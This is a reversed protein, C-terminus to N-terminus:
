KSSLFEYAAKLAPFQASDVATGEKSNGKIYVKDISEMTLETKGDFSPWGHLAFIEPFDKIAKNYKAFKIATDVNNTAHLTKYQDLYCYSM